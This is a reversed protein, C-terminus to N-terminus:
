ENKLFNPNVRYSTPELEHIVHSLVHCQALQAMLRYGSPRSATADHWAGLLQEIDFESEAPLRELADLFSYRQRTWRWGREQLWLSYAAEIKERDTIM